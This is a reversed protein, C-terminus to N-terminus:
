FADNGHVAEEFFLEISVVLVHLWTGSRLIEGDRFARPVHEKTDCCITTFVM